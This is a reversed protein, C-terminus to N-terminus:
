RGNRRRQKLKVNKKHKEILINIKQLLVIFAYVFSCILFLLFSIICIASAYFVM